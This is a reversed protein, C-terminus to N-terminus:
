TQVPNLRPTQYSGSFEGTLGASLRMAEAWLSLRESLIERYGAPPQSDRVLFPVPMGEAPAALGRKREFRGDFVSGDASLSAEGPDRGILLTDGRRQLWAGGLTLRSQPGGEEISACLAELQMRDCAKDTGAALQLLIGLLRPTPTREAPACALTVQGFRDVEVDQALASAIARDEAARLLAASTAISALADRNELQAITRRVRVREYINAQNSPDSVWAQGKAKLLAQLTQRRQPLLPRGLLVGRGEPWVPSVSVLQLGAAGALPSGHALRMLLTEEFDDQTHGLLLLGAGAARAAYALLTHRARRAHRQTAREGTWTLCQAPHGLASAQEVVCAAERAAEPRLGHDVTLVLLDRGSIQAWQDTLVLLARSDSGGSVAIAVPGSRGAAM